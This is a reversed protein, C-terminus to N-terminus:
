VLSLGAQVLTKVVGYGAATLHIGDSFYTANTYDMLRADAGLDVLVDAVSHGARIKTNLAPWNTAHWNAPNADIETCWVIKWGAAKRAQLYALQDEYILTGLAGSNVGAWFVLVNKGGPVLRADVEAARANIVVYNAGSTALSAVGYGGYAKLGSPYAGDAAAFPWSTGATRSDGEFLIVGTNSNGIQNMAVMSPRANAIMGQAFRGPFKGITSGTGSFQAGNSALSGAWTGLGTMEIQKAGNIYLAARDASKSWGLAYHAWRTGAQASHVVTKTVGGAVYSASLTGNAMTNVLISNSGNVVFNILYLATGNTWSAGDNAAFWGGAVGEAGNFAAVLGAGYCNVYGTGLMDVAKSGDGIGAVGLTNTGAFVGNRGNGSRDFVTTGSTEGATLQQILSSGLLARVIREYRRGRSAFKFLDKM